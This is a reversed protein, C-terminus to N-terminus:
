FTIVKANVGITAGGVTVPTGTVTITQGVQLDAFSRLQGGSIIRTDGAVNVSTSNNVILFQPLAGKFTIRGTLQFANAFVVEIQRATVSNDPNVTGEVRVADSLIIAAFSNRQGTVVANTPVIILRSARGPEVITLTGSGKAVVVGQAVLGQPPLQPQTRAVVRNKVEVKMALLRGDDLRFGEVKVRDGVRFDAVSAPVRAREARDEDEDEDRDGTHKIKLTTARQVLVIVTGAQSKAPQVTFTSSAPNVMVITGEVEVKGKVKSPGALVPATVALAVAVSLAAMAKMRM